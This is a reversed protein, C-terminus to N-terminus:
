RVMLANSTPGVLRGPLAGIPSQDELKGVALHNGLTDARILREAGEELRALPGDNPGAGVHSDRALDFGDM